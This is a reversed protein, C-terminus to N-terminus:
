NGGFMKKLELYLARAENVSINDLLNHIQDLQTVEKVPEPETPTKTVIRVTKAKSLQPKLPHYYKILTHLQQGNKSVFKQRTMKSILASVSSPNLGLANLDSLLQKVTIGPNAKIHEFTQLSTSIKKTAPAYTTTETFHMPPTGDTNIDDSKWGDLATRLATNLDM